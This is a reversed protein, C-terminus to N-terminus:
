FLHQIRIRIHKAVPLGSGIRIPHPPEAQSSLLKLLPHPYELNNSM